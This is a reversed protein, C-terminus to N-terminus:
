NQIMRKTSKKKLVKMWKEKQKWENNWKNIKGKMWESKRKHM